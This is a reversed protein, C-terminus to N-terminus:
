DGPKKRGNPTWHWKPGQVPKEAVIVVVKPDPKNFIVKAEGGSVTPAVKPTPRFRGAAGRRAEQEAKKDVMEYPFLREHPRDHRAAEAELPDHDAGPGRERDSQSVHNVLRTVFRGRWSKDPM